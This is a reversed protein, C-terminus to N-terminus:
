GARCLIRLVSAAGGPWIATDGSQKSSVAGCAGIKAPVTGVYCEYPPPNLLPLTLTASNGYYVDYIKLTSGTGPLVGTGAPDIGPIVSKNVLVELTYKPFETAPVPM